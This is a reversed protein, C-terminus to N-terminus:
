LGCRRIETKGEWISSCLVFLFGLQNPYIYTSPNGAPLWSRTPTFSIHPCIVISYIPNSFVPCLIVTSQIIREDERGGKWKKGYQQNQRVLPSEGRGKSERLCGKRFRKLEKIYGSQQTCRQLPQYGIQLAVGDMNGSQLYFRKQQLNPDSIHYHEREWKM